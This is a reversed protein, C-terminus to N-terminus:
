TQILQAGTPAAAAPNRMKAWECRILLDHRPPLSSWARSETRLRVQREQISIWAPTPLSSPFAWLPLLTADRPGRLVEVFTLLPCQSGDASRHVTHSRASLNLLKGCCGLGRGKTQGPALSHWNVRCLFLSLCKRFLEKLYASLPPVPPM